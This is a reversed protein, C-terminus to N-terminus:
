RLYTRSDEGRTRHRRLVATVDPDACLAALLQTDDPPRRRPRIGSRRVPVGADHLARLVLQITSDLHAAIEAVTWQRHHYLERLETIDLTHRHERATRPRIAIGAARLWRRATKPDTGYRQGIAATPLREDLYLQRLV